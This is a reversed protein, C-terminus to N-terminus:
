GSPGSDIRLGHFRHGAILQAVCEEFEKTFPSVLDNRTRGQHRAVIGRQKKGIRAHNLELVHKKAILFATIQPRRGRLAAHACAALVVIEFVNAVGRAVVGKKFHQTVEAKAVVEFTVRYLEGPFEECLCQPNRCFFQPYRDKFVIVLGGADPDILDTHIGISKGPKPFFIIEPRHSIGSGATGAAFNEVIVAGIHGTARRARRIVITVTVDLDPVQHEHLEIARRTALQRRQGLGRDIRSHAELSNGCHHLAHVAIVLDIQKGVQDCGDRFGHIHWVVAVVRQHHDGIVNSRSREQDDITHQRAVLSAAIHQPSDNSPGQPVAVLETHVLREEPFDDLWQTLLHTLSIGLENFRTGM